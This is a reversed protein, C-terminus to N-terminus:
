PVPSQDKAGDPSLGYRKMLEPSMQVPGPSNTAPSPEPPTDSPKPVLGYRRMLDPSMRVLSDAPWPGPPRGPSAPLDPEGHALAEQRLAERIDEPIDGDLILVARSERNLPLSVTEQSWRLVERGDRNRPASDPTPPIPLLGRHPLRRRITLRWPTGDFQYGRLAKRLKLEAPSLWGVVEIEGRALRLIEQTVSARQLQVAGGILVTGSALTALVCAPFQFRLSRSATAPHAFNRFSFAVALVVPIAALVFGATMLYGVYRPVIPTNLRAVESESLARARALWPEPNERFEEFQGSVRIHTDTLGFAALGYCLALLVGTFALGLLLARLSNPAASSALFCFVFLTPLVAFQILLGFTRQSGPVLQFLLLAAVGTIVLGALFKLWWQTVRSVPLLVQSDLTGLRREEAIATSGALIVSVVAFMGILLSALEQSVVTQPLMPKVGALLVGAALTVLTTTQLRLEKGVLEGLWPKRSPRRAEISSRKPLFLGSLEREALDPAEMTLWRKRAFWPAGLLYGGGLIGLLVTSANSLWAFPSSLWDVLSGLLVLTLPPVAVSFVLGAILNRTVLSWWPVTAWAALAFALAWGIVLVLQHTMGGQAVLGTVLLVLIQSFLGVALVSIKINWVRQREVPAALLTALTRQQFEVGLPLSALLAFLFVPVVLVGAPDNGDRLLLGVQAA